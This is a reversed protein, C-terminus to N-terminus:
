KKVTAQVIMNLVKKIKSLTKDCGKINHRKKIYAPMNYSLWSRQKKDQWILIKQPLDIGSQPSCQMLPTGVKPNGFIILESAILKLNVQKANKAHNIRTFLTLGKEQIIKELRNASENVSYPSPISVLGESAHACFTLFFFNLLLLRYINMGFRRQQLSNTKNKITTKHQNPRLEVTSITFKKYFVM